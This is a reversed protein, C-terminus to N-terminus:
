TTKQTKPWRSNDRLERLLGAYRTAKGEITLSFSDLFDHDVVPLGRLRMKQRGPDLWVRAALGYEEALAVTLDFIDERGGDALCHWDLHTPTLEAGLVADIQARFELEVEDLRAAIVGSGTSLVM